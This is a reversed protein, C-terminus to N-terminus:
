AAKKQELREHLSDREKELQEINSRINALKQTLGEDETADDDGQHSEQFEAPARTLSETLKFHEADIAALRQRIELETMEPKTPAHEM